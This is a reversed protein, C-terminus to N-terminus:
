EIRNILVIFCNTELSEGFKLRLKKISKKVERGESGMDVNNNASDKNSNPFFLGLLKMESNVWSDNEINKWVLILNKHSYYYDM